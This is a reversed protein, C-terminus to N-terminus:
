PTALANGRRMWSVLMQLGIILLRAVRFRLTTQPAILNDGNKM